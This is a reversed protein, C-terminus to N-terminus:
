ELCECSGESLAMPSSWRQPARLPTRRAAWFFTRFSTRTHHHINWFCIDVSKKSLAVLLQQSQHSPIWKPNPQAHNPLNATSLTLKPGTTWTWSLYKSGMKAKSSQSPPKFMSSSNSADLNSPCLGAFDVEVQLRWAFRQCRAIFHVQWGCGVRRSAGRLNIEEPIKKRNWVWHKFCGALAHDPSDWWFPYCPQPTTGKSTM